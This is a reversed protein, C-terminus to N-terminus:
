SRTSKGGSRPKSAAKKAKTPARRAALAKELEAVRKELARLSTTLAKVQDATPPRLEEFTERVRGAAQALEDVLDQARERTVQAQGAAAQFTQDVATRVADARSPKPM